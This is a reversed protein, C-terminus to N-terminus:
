PLCLSLQYSAGRVRRWSLKVCHVKGQEDYAGSEVVLERGIRIEHGVQVVFERRAFGPDAPHDATNVM